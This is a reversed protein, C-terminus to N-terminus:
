AMFTLYAPWLSNPSECSKSCKSGPIDHQVMIHCIKFGAILLKDSWTNSKVHKLCGKWCFFDYGTIARNDSHPDSYILCKEQFWISIQVWWIRGVLELIKIPSRWDSGLALWHLSFDLCQDSIGGCQDANPDIACKQVINIPMSQCNAIIRPTM